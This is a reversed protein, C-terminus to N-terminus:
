FPFPDRRWVRPSKHLPHTSKSKSSEASDRRAPMPMPLWTPQIQKDLSRADHLHHVAPKKM